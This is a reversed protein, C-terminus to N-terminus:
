SRKPDGGFDGDMAGHRSRGDQGGGLAGGCNEILQSVISVCPFVERFM